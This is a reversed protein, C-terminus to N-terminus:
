EGGKGRLVIRVVDILLGLTVINIFVAPLAALSRGILALLISSQEILPTMLTDINEHTSVLSVTIWDLPITFIDIIGMFTSNTVNSFGDVGSCWPQTANGLVTDLCASSWFSMNIFNPVSVPVSPLTVEPTINLTANYTCEGAGGITIYDIKDECDEGASNEACLIVSIKQPASGAPITFGPNQDTSGLNISLDDNYFGWTWATPVNTSEDVFDVYDGSYYCDKPYAVNKFAAVPAVTNSGSVRYVDSAVWWGEPLCVAVQYVQHNDYTQPITYTGSWARPITGNIIGEVHWPYVDYGTAEWANYNLNTYAEGTYVGTGGAAICLDNGTQIPMVYGYGVDHFTAHGWGPSLSASIPSVIMGLLILFALLLVKAPSTITMEDVM